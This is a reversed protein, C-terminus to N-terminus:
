KKAYVIGKLNRYVINSLYAMYTDNRSYNEACIEEFQDITPTAQSINTQHMFVHWIEHKIVELCFGSKKFYVTRNDSYMIADSDKGHSSTYRRDTQVVFSWEENGITHKYMM